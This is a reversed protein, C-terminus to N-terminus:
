RATAPQWADSPQASAPCERTITQLDLKLLGATGADIKGAQQLQDVLGQATTLRDLMQKKGAQDFPYPGKKGRAIAEAEIWTADIKQWEATTTAGPAARRPPGASSAPVVGLTALLLLGATVLRQRWRPGRRSAQILDRRRVVLWALLLLGLAGLALGPLLTRAPM